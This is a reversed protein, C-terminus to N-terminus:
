KNARIGTVTFVEPNQDNIGVIIKREWGTHFIEMDRIEGKVQFGSEVPYVVRFAPGPLVRVLWGYSAEYRGLYPIAPTFNGGVLLENRQDLDLDAVLIDFVPAFQIEPPLPFRNFFGAGNNIFVSSEFCHVERVISKELVGAPFLEQITTGAFDAYDKYMSRLAPIQEFLNDAPAFPYEKGEKYSTIIQDLLGDQDFDNIYIRAPHEQNATLYANLGLNGAVLDEYGDGDVDAAV